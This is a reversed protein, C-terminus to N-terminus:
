RGKLGKRCVFLSLLIGLGLISLTAPEPIPCRFRKRHGHSFPSSWHDDGKVPGPLVPFTPIKSDLFSLDSFPAILPDKLYFLSGRGGSHVVNADHMEKRLSITPDYQVVSYDLLITPEEIKPVEKTYLETICLLFPILFISKM